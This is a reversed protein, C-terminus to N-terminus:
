SPDILAPKSLKHLWVAGPDFYMNIQLLTNTKNIEFHHKETVSCIFFLEVFLQNIMAPHNDHSPSQDSAAKDPVSVDM